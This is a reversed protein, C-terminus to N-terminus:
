HKNAFYAKLGGIALEKTDYDATWFKGTKKSVVGWKGNPKKKIIDAYDNISECIIEMCRIKM